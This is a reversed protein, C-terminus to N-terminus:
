LPVSLRRPEYSCHCRQKVYADADSLVVSAGGSGEAGGMLALGVGGARRAYRACDRSHRVSGGRRREVRVTGM